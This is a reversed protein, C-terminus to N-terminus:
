LLLLVCNLFLRYQVVHGQGLVEARRIRTGDTVCGLELDFRTGTTTYRHAAPVQGLRSSLRLTLRSIRCAAARHRLGLRTTSIANCYTSIALYIGVIVTVTVTPRQLVQLSFSAKAGGLVPGERRCGVVAKGCRM